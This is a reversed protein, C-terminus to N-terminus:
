LRSRVRGLAVYRSFGPLRPSIPKLSPCSKVGGSIDLVRGRDILSDVYTVSDPPMVM